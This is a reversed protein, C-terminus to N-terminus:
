CFDSWILTEENNEVLKNMGHWYDPNNFKLTLFINSMFNYPFKNGQNYENCHQLGKLTM